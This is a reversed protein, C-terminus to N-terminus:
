LGGTTSCLPRCAERHKYCKNRRHSGGSLIGLSKRFVYCALLNLSLYFKDPMNYLEGLCFIHSLVMRCDGQDKVETVANKARWDLSDPVDCSGSSEFKAFNSTPMNNINHLHNKRFEEPSLDAFKNLGLRSESPSRRRANRENIYMLNSLFIQFRKAEEQPNPYERGHQKQWLQFLGLVQDESTFKQLSEHHSLISFDSPIASSLCILSACVFFLLFTIAMQSSMM